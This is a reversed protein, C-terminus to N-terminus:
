LVEHLALRHYIFLVSNFIHAEICAFSWLVKHETSHSLSVLCDRGPLWAVGRLNRGNLEDLCKNRIKMISLLSEKLLSLARMPPDPPWWYPGRWNKWKWVVKPFFQGFYIATGVKARPAGKELFDQIRWRSVIDLFSKGVMEHLTTVTFLKAFYSVGQYCNGFFFRWTDSLQGLGEGLSVFRSNKLTAVLAGHMCIYLEMFDHFLKM